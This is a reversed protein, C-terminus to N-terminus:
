ATRADNQPEVDEAVDETQYVEDLADRSIGHLQTTVDCDTRLTVPPLDGFAPLTVTLHAERGTKWTVIVREGQLLDRLVQRQGELPVRGRKLKRLVTQVRAQVSEEGLKKRAHADRARELREVDAQLAAKQGRIKESNRDLATKDITGEAYLAVIRDIQEQVDGLRGRAADLQPAYPDNSSTVVKEHERIQVLRAVVAEWLKSALTDERVSGCSERRSGDPGRRGCVLFFRRTTQSRHGHIHSGCACDTFGTSLLTTRHKLTREKLRRTIAAYTKLDLLPPYTVSFTRGDISRTAEGLYVRINKLIQQVTSPYWTKAGRPSLWKAATAKRAANCVGGAVYWDMLQKFRGADVPHPGYTTGNKRDGNVPVRAYGYPPRGGTAIVNKGLVRAKGRMTKDRIGRFEETSVSEKVDYAITNPDNTGSEDRVKIGYAGLVGVICAADIRSRIRKAKDNSTRDQRALRSLSYAYLYDPRVRGGEVADILRQFERGDLLSGSVGNDIVWGDNKPGYPILKVGDRKTADKAWAVQADITKEDRQSKTSTRCYIIATAQAKGM